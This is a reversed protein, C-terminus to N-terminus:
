TSTPHEVVVADDAEKSPLFDSVRQNLFSNVSKKDFLQAVDHPMSNAYPTIFGTLSAVAARISEIQRLPKDNCACLYTKALASTFDCIADKVNGKLEQVQHDFSIQDNASQIPKRLQTTIEDIKGQVYTNLSSDLSKKRYLLYLPTGVFTLGLGSILIKAGAPSRFKAAGIITIAISAILIVGAIITSSLKVENNLVEIAGNKLSEASYPALKPLAM